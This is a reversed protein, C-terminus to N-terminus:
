KAVVKDQEWCLRCAMQYGCLRSYFLPRNHPWNAVRGCGCRCRPIQASPRRRCTRREPPLEPAPDYLGLIM